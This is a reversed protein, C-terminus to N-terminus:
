AGYSWGLPGLVLAGLFKNYERLVTVLGRETTWWDRPGLGAPVVPHEVIRARPLDRSFELASRRMHYHGTVLRLSRYNRSNFWAATEAANGRTTNARYGIQIRQAIEPPPNGAMRLLEAREVRPNVGTVFMVPALNSQLAQMGAELRGGGGTLVVIADTRTTPNQASQPLTFGFWLLGCLWAFAGAFATAVTLRLTAFVIGLFRRGFGRADARTTTWRRLRREAM